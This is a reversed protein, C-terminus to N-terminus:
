LSIRETGCFLIYGNRDYNSTSEKLEKGDYYLEIIDPYKDQSNYIDFAYKNQSCIFYIGSSCLNHVSKYDFRDLAINIMESIYDCDTSLEVLRNSIMDGGGRPNIEMLYISGDDKIKLEIHTAGNIFGVSDLIAPITRHINAIVGQPLSAPQLHGLEVFHPPGSTIKDTIQIIHHVGKYSLSEVSVEKGCIYEECLFSSNTLNNPIVMAALDDKSAIFNVGMKAFGQTPKIVCPFTDVNKLQEYCLLTYEIKGISQISSTVNRVYEKDQIKLITQYPTGILGLKEAVYSAASM